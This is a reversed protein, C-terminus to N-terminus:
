GQAPSPPFPPPFPPPSLPPPAGGYGIQKEVLVNFFLVWCLMTKAALSLATYAFEARIAYKRCRLVGEDTAPAWYIYLQEVLQVVAFSSMIIFQFSYLFYVWEPPAHRVCAEGPTEVVCASVSLTFNVIFVSVVAIFPVWGLLHPLFLTPWRSNLRRTPEAPLLNINSNVAQWLDEADQKISASAESQFVENLVEVTRGLEAARLQARKFVSMLVEQVLGLMMCTSFSLFIVYLFTTEQIGNLLAFIVAMLSASIAYELWRLPQM